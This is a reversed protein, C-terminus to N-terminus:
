IASSSRASRTATSARRCRCTTARWVRPWAPVTSAGGRPGDGHGYGCRGGAAADATEGAAGGAAQRTQQVAHLFVQMRTVYGATGGHGDSELLAYPRGEALDNFVHEVFSNPGCGYAGVLLPFAAGATRGAVVGRLTQGASAWHVRALPPVDAPVSFCDVPVALAGNAAAIEGVGCDLLPEHIVHTEGCVVVM